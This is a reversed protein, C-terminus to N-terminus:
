PGALPVAVTVGELEDHAQVAELLAAVHSVQVGALPVPDPVTVQDTVVFLAVLERVAVNVM